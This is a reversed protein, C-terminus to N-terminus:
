TGGRAGSGAALPFVASLSTGEGPASSVQWHGGFQDVRGAVSSLGLGPVVKNPDFGAGNDRVSLAIAHDRDLVLSIEVAGAAAHRYANALAEETVRYVALRLPEPLQNAAPDDLEALAPDVTLSIRMQQEFRRALSRVAPVLGVRIISPHLLHSAERVDQERILDIEARAAALLAQAAAPDGGVLQECQGLQHWVLLLKTQLSGHLLEAIERRLTEEATIILQQARRVEALRQQLQSVLRANDSLLLQERAQNAAALELNVRALQDRILGLENRHQLIQQSLTGFETIDEVIHILGIIRGDGDRHPVDTFQLYTTGGGPRDRNIGSLQFRPLEGALIEALVPESGILEPALDLLTRGLAPADDGLLQEDGHVARVILGRDTVAYAVRSEDLVVSASPLDM